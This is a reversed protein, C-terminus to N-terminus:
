KKKKTILKELNDFGHNVDKKMTELDHKVKLFGKSTEKDISHTKKGIATIMGIIFLSLTLTTALDSPSGFLKWIIIALTAVILVWIVIDEPTIKAM